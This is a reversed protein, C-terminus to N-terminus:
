LRVGRRILFIAVPLTILFALVFENLMWRTIYILKVILSIDHMYSFNLIARLVDALFPQIYLKTLIWVAFYIVIM